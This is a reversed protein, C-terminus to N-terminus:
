RHFLYHDPFVVTHIVDAGTARLSTFFKEPHAIGSYAICPRELLWSIDGLPVLRAYLIPGAFAKTAATYAPATQAVEEAFMVVIADTIQLQFPLRARLPGAPIVEGNGVGRQADVVALTLTKALSPNQLGDDMVIVDADTAEIAAVGKVRDRAIVTPAHTALLLPEDGVESATDHQPDVFHPGPNSGGFGRSLFAPRHGLEKLHNSIAIAVPTKGAGGATFNGVCIVPLSSRHPRTHRYRRETARAWIGAIPRLLRATPSLRDVYWWSPSSLHM